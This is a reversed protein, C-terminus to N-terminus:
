SDRAIRDGLHSFRHRGLLRLMIFFPRRALVSTLTLVSLALNLDRLEVVPFSQIAGVAAVARFTFRLQLSM